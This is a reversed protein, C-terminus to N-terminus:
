KNGQVQRLTELVNIGHTASVLEANGVFDKRLKEVAQRYQVIIKPNRNIGFSLNSEYFFLGGNGM